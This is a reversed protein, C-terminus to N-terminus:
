KKSFRTRILLLSSLLLLASAPEPVATVDFSKDVQSFMDISNGDLSVVETDDGLISLIQSGATLARFTLTALTFGTGQNAQLIMEDADVDAFDELYFLGAVSDDAYPSNGLGDDFGNGFTWNLLALANSDYGITAAFSSLFYDLDTVTLQATVVENEFYNTKDLDLNILTANSVFSTLLALTLLINKM